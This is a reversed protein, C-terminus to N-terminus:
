QEDFAGVEALRRALDPDDVGLTRARALEAAADRWRQVSWLSRALQIRLAGSEPGLRLASEYAAVAEAPQGAHARSWGLAIWATQDGPALEVLRQRLPVAAASADQRDLTDALGRLIGPDNPKAALAREWMAGAGALDGARGRMQAVRQLIRADHPRREALIEFQRLAEAQDGLYELCGALNVRAIDYTPDLELAERFQAVAEPYRGADMLAAGYNNHAYNSSPAAEIGLKWLSLSDGYAPLRQRTLLALGALLGAAVARGRAGDLSRDAAAVVVALGFLPLYARHDLILVKMPAVLGLVPVLALAFMLLGCAARPVRRWALVTAAAYLLVFAAAVWLESRGPDILGPHYPSPAMGWPLLAHRVYYGFIAAAVAPRSQLPISPYKGNDLLAGIVELRAFGYLLTVALLMALLPLRARLAAAAPRRHWLVDMLLLFAPAVVGSEKTWLTIAFCAAVLADALRPRTRRLREDGVLMVVIPPVLLLDNRGLILAVAQSQLPHLGFALAAIAATGISCGFVALAAVILGVNIGHLFVNTRHFSAADLGFLKADVVFSAIMLPRYYAVGDGATAARGFAAPIDRWEDLTDRAKTILGGDDWVYGGRTAPWYVSVTLIAALLAVVLTRTGGARRADRGPQKRSQESKTGEDSSRRWRRAVDPARVVTAGM